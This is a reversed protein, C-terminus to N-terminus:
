RVRRFRQHYNALAELGFVVTLVSAPVMELWVSDWPHAAFYMQDHVLAAAVGDVMVVYLLPMAVMLGLAAWVGRARLGRLLYVCAGILVVGVAFGTVPDVGPEIVDPNAFWFAGSLALKFVNAVAAFVVVPVGVWFGFNTHAALQHVRGPM